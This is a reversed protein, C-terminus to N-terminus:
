ARKFLQAQEAPPLAALELASMQMASKQGPVPASNGRGARTNPGPAKEVKFFKGKPSKLLDSVFVGIDKVEGLEDAVTVADGEAQIREGHRKDIHDYLIEVADPDVIGAAQIASRIGVSKSKAVATARDRKIDEKQQKLDAAIKELLEKQTTPEPETVQPTAAAAVPAKNSKRIEHFVRAEFAKLDDMTVTQKTQGPDNSNPTGPAGEAGAPPTVPDPM